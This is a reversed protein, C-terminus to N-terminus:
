WGFFGQRLSKGLLYGFVAPSFYLAMQKFGLALCFFISGLVDQDDLFSNIAWLVLGLMVANYQFHGNDILILGPQLLILLLATHKRTWTKNAFWRQTFVLVASFYILIELVLVTARMYLKADESEFGRSEKWAFWDTNILNGRYRHNPYSLPCQKTLQKACLRTKTILCFSRKKMAWDFSVRLWLDLQCLSHPASLGSGVM